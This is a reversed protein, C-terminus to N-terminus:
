AMAEEDGVDELESELSRFAPPQNDPMEDLNDDDFGEEFTQINVKSDEADQDYSQTRFLPATSTESTTSPRRNKIKPPSSM